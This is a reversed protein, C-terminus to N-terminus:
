KADPDTAAAKSVRGKSSTTIASPRRRPPKKAPHFDASTKLTRLLGADYREDVLTGDALSGSEKAM